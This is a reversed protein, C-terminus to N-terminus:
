DNYKQIYDYLEEITEISIEKSDVYIVKKVDEYLWWDILEKDKINMCENIMNVIEDILYDGINVVSFGDTIKSILASLTQQESHFNQILKIRKIFQEKTM